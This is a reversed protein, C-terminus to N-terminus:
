ARSKRKCLSEYIPSQDSSVVRLRIRAVSAAIRSAFDADSDDNEALTSLGTPGARRMRSCTRSDSLARRLCDAAASRHASIRTRRVAHAVAGRSDKGTRSEGYWALGQMCHQLINGRVFYEEAGVIDERRLRVYQVLTWKRLAVIQQWLEWAARRYQGRTLGTVRVPGLGFRGNPVRRRSRPEAREHSTGFFDNSSIGPLM